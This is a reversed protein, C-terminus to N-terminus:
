IHILSLEMARRGLVEMLATSRMEMKAFPWATNAVDQANFEVLRREAATVLEVLLPSASLDAAAFAWAKNALEQTNFEGLHPEVARALACTVGRKDRWRLRGRLTPSNRRM